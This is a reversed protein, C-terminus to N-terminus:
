VESARPFYNPSVKPFLNWTFKKPYACQNMDIMIECKLSFGM